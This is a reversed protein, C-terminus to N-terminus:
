DVVSRSIVEDVWGPQLGTAASIEEKSLGQEYLRVVEEELCVEGGRGEVVREERVSVYLGPYLM